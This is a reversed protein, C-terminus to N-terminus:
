PYDLSTSRKAKIWYGKGPKMTQLTNAYPPSNPSYSRWQDKQGDYEYVIDIDNMIPALIDEIEYEVTPHYGVLNWGRNLPIRIFGDPFDEAAITISTENGLTKLAYGSSADIPPLNNAFPPRGTTYNKWQGNTFGSVMVNVHDFVQYPDDKAGDFFLPFSVLPFTDNPRTPIRVYTDTVDGPDTYIFSTGWTNHLDGNADVDIGGGNKARIYKGHVSKFRIKDGPQIVENDLPFSKYITFKEWADPIERNGDLGGHAQASWLRHNHTSRITVIDGNKLEGGNIDILNHKEWPGCSPRNAYIRYDAGPHETAVYDGNQAQLCMNYGYVKRVASKDLETIQFGSTGRGPRDICQGNEQLDCRIFDENNNDAYHMISEYDYPKGMLIHTEPHYKGTYAPHDNLVKVYNDRIPRNHEHPLGIAHGIEHLVADSHQYRFCEEGLGIYRPGPNSVFGGSAYCAYRDEPKIFHVYTPFKSQNFQTRMIFKVAGIANWKHIANAIATRESSTFDGTQISYPIIGGPWFGHSFLTEGPALLLDGYVVNYKKGDITTQQANMQYSFLICIFLYLFFNNM